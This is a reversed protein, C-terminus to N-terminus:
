DQFTHANTLAGDNRRSRDNGFANRWIHDHRSVRRNDDLSELRSANSRRVGLASRGVGFKRGELNPTRHEPNSTKQKMFRLRMTTIPKMPEIGIAPTIQCCM